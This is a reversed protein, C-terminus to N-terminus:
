VSERYKVWESSGKNILKAREKSDQTEMNRQVSTQMIDFLEAALWEAACKVEFKNRTRNQIFHLCFSKCCM